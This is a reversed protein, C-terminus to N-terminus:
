ISKGPSTMYTGLEELGGKKVISKGGDVSTKVPGGLHLAKAAKSNRGKLMGRGM